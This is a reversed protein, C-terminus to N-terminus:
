KGSWEIPQSDYPTGGTWRLTLQTAGEPMLYTLCTDYSSGSTFSSPPATSDCAKFIGPSFQIYEPDLGKDPASFISLMPNSKKVLKSPVDDVAKIRFRAYYATDRKEGASLTFVKNVDAISGKDVSVLTVQLKSGDKAKESFSNMVWGVTATDGVSLKTGPPTLTKSPASAAQSPQASTGTGPKSGGCAAVGPILLAAAVGATISAAKM